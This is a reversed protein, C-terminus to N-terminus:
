SLLKKLYSAEVWQYFRIAKGEVEAFIGTQRHDDCDPAISVPIFGTPAETSIKRAKYKKQWNYFTTETIQHMKAFEKPSITAAKQFEEIANFVEQRSRHRQRKVVSGTITQEM